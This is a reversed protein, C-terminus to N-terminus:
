RLTHTFGNRKRAPAVDPNEPNKASDDYHATCEIKSGAPQVIPGVDKSFTVNSPRNVPIAGADPTAMGAMQGLPCSAACVEFTFIALATRKM